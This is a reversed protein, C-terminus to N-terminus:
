GSSLNPSPIPNPSPSPSPSPSPNPSPNPKPNPTPTPTPSPSPNPSPYAKPPPLDDAHPALLMKLTFVIDRLASLEPYDDSLEPSEGTLYRWPQPTRAAAAEEPTGM